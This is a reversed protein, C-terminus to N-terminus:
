HFTFTLWQITAIDTRNTNLAQQRSFHIRKLLRSHYSKSELKERRLFEQRADLIPVSEFKHGCIFNLIGKSECRISDKKVCVFNLIGKSEYRISDKKSAFL